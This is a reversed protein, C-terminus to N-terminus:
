HVVRIFTLYLVKTTIIKLINGIKRRMGLNKVSQEYRNSNTGFPKEITEFREM